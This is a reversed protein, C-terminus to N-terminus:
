DSRSSHRIMLIRTRLGAFLAVVASVPLAIMLIHMFGIGGVGTQGHFSIYGAVAGALYWSLLHVAIAVAAVYAIGSSRDKWSKAARLCAATLSAAFVVFLLGYVIRAGATGDDTGWINDGNLLGVSVLVCLTVFSGLAILLLAKPKLLLHSQIM